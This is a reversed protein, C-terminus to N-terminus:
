FKRELVIRADQYITNHDISLADSAKIEGIAYLPFMIEPGLEFSTLNRIVLHIGLFLEEASPHNFLFEFRTANKVLLPFYEMEVETFFNQDRSSFKSKGELLLLPSVSSVPFGIEGAGIGLSLYLHETPHWGFGISGYTLNEKPSGTMEYSLEMDLEFPTNELEKELVIRSTLGSSETKNEEAYAPSSAWVAFLSALVIIIRYM